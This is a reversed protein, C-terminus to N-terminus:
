GRAFLASDRVSRALEYIIDAAGELQAISVWEDATHAQAVDGPGFVVTPSGDQSLAAADTGFPVGLLVCDHGQRRAVTALSTALSENGEDSLGPAQIYPESHTVSITDDLQQRLHDIARQRLIGPDQGPLVRHDIEIECFDPVTNVSIGGKVTGVSLSPPTLRPHSGLTPVIDRAYAELATLVHAMAYIASVGKEPSSSHTARGHTQCKWRVCGKHAVVVNLQTPESVVIADPVRPLVSSTGSQWLERLHTAGTFGHEENVTCALVIHPREGAPVQRLRALAVLLSAMGGKIDCAGRGHVRGNEIEGSWPPITMGDVPVTDQHVELLLLSGGASLEPEAPLSALINERAPESATAPTVTHREFELQWQGFLDALFDTVRHEFCTEAALSRGMPNVSPIQVLQSTLRGVDPSPPANTTM